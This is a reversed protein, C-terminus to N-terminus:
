NEHQLSGHSILPHELNCQQGPRVQGANIGYLPTEDMDPVNHAGHRRPGQLNHQDLHGPTSHSDQM